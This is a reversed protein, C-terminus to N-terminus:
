FLFRENLIVRDVKKERGLCERKKEYVNKENQLKSFILFLVSHLRTWSNLLLWRHLIQPFLTQIPLFYFYFIKKFENEEKESMSFFSPFVLPPHVSMNSSAEQVFSSCFSASEM